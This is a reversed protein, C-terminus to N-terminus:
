AEVAGKTNKFHAILEAKIRKRYDNKERELDSVLIQFAERDKRLQAEQDRLVALKGAEKAIKELEIRKYNEFDARANDVDIGKQELALTLSNAQALASAASEIEKVKAEREDLEESRKKASQVMLQLQADVAVMNGYLKEAATFIEKIGMQLEEKDNGM